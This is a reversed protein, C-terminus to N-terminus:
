VLFRAFYTKVFGGKKEKRVISFETCEKPQVVEKPVGLRVRVLREVHVKEVAGFGAVAHTIILNQLLFKFVLSPTQQVVHNKHNGSIKKSRMDRSHRGLCTM